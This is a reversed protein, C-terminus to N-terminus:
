LKFKYGLTIQFVSNRSSEGGGTIAKSVGWNYRADLQVNKYEYSLGVPIALDVSKVSADDVDGNKLADELGMEASAGGVSVKAKDNVKFGPQIGLKIAFGKAVYFNALIPINIYDLKITCDVEEADAKVGQQSYLLGASIGLVDTAQYEAELGGVFGIRPDCGDQNTMTAINIGAKPLISWHGVTNQAFSGLSAFLVVASLILRKM